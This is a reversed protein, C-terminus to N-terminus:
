QQLSELYNVLLLLHGRVVEDGVTGGGVKKAFREGWVPMERSGHARVFRRGDIYTAIEAAPFRGGRRQAIRRLDAPPPRMASAAPGNGSADMGHCSSCYRVFYKRGLSEDKKAVEQVPLKVADSAYGLTSSLICLIIWWGLSTHFGPQRM